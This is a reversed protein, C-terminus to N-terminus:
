LCIHHSDIFVIDFKCSVVAVRKIHPPNQNFGKHKSLAQRGNYATAVVEFGLYDWNVLTLLDKQALKEDDVIMVTIKKM